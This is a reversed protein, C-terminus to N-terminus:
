VQNIDSIIESKENKKNYKYNVGTYKDFSYNKLTNKDLLKDM